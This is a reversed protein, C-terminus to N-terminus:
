KLAIKASHQALILEARKVEVSYVASPGESDINAKLLVALGMEKLTSSAEGPQNAALKLGPGALVEGSELDTVKARLQFAGDKAPELSVETSFRLEPQTSNAIDVGYVVLALAVFVTSVIISRM